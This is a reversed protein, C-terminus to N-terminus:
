QIFQSFQHLFSLQQSVKAKISTQDFCIVKQQLWLQETQVYM